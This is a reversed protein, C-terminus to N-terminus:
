ELSTSWSGSSPSDPQFRKQGGGKPVVMVKLRGPRQEFGKNGAIRGRGVQIKLQAIQKQLLFFRFLREGPQFLSDPEIWTQKGRVCGQGASIHPVSTRSLGDMM